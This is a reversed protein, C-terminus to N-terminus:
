MRQSLAADVDPDELQGLWEVLAPYTSPNLALAPRLEPAVEAIKALIIAPTGPNLADEETYGHLAVAGTSTDELALVEARDITETPTSLPRQQEFRRPNITTDEMPLADIVQTEDERQYQASDSRDSTSAIVSAPVREGNHDSGESDTLAQNAAGLDAGVSGSIGASSDVSSVTSVGMGTKADIQVEPVMGTQTVPTSTASQVTGTQTGVTSLTVGDAKSGAQLVSKTWTYADIKPEPRSQSAGVYYERSAENGILAYAGIAPLVLILMLHGFSLGSFPSVASIVFALGVGLVLAILVPARSTGPNKNFSRLAIVAVVSVALSAIAAAILEGLGFFLGSRSSGNLLAAFALFSVMFLLGVALMVRLVIAVLDLREEVDTSRKSARRFAPASVVAALAPILFLGIGLNMSLPHFAQLDWLQVTELRPMASSADNATLYIVAVVAVAMGVLFSGWARTRKIVAGFAPLFVLAGSALVVIVMEIGRFQEIATVIFGVAILVTLAVAFIRSTKAANQDETASGLESARAQASLAVGAGALAWASGLAWMDVSQIFAVNVAQWLYLAIFPIALVLRLVRTKAVTWSQPLLGFRSVYPFVLALASVVVAGLFLPDKVPEGSSAYHSPMALSLALFLVALGDRVYDSEPISAFREKLSRTPVNIAGTAASVASESSASM